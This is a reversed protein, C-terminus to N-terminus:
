YIWAAHNYSVATCLLMMLTLVGIHLLVQLTHVNLLLYITVTEVTSMIGSQPFTTQVMVLLCCYSLEIASIFTGPKDLELMLQFELIDWSIVSSMQKLTATIVTMVSTVGDM